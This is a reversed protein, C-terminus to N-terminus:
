QVSAEMSEFSAYNYQLEELSKPIPLEEAYITLKGSELQSPLLYVDGKGGGRLAYEITTEPINIDFCEEKTAGFFGFIGSRPVEQCQTRKSSPITISSNGYVYVTLTYSGESLKVGSVDPLLTSVSKGDSDVFSIIATGELNKGGVLLDLNVNYLRDLIIDISSQSNSSFAESKDAFGEARVILEGNLCAPAKGIFRGNASKGLNCRQNFCQYIVDGNVNNLNADYLNVGIDQTVFECLDFGSSPEEELESFIAERVVNNDIIAVVPFQFIEDNNYIQVLIPFSVDYVFHYPAYCFGLIGLGEQLGVPSAIMLENDVGEGVIEVKTPMTRSYILNINEDVNEGVDIIYYEDKKNNLNYYNGKFKIAGINAELGRKLEDLVDQTKWIKGSCSIEVGDVPAYLRLVDAAYVDFVADNKEKEYIKRALNYFKGLKSGIEINHETRRGSVEGKSVTLDSDVNVNVENDFIEVSASARDLEIDYGQVYFSSFDCNGLNEEVYGAIGEEIDRKLPVQEKILGNGSIYYWYPVPFGLFNLHSSFPAYESGPFYDPVEVYGGQSGALQVAARTEQEICFTYYDFVPELEAPIGGIGIGERVIYYVIIGFVIVIAIIIFMTMQGKKENLNM